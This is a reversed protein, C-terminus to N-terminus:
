PRFRSPDPCRLIYSDPALEIDKITPRGGDVFKSSRARDRRCRTPLRNASGRSRSCGSRTKWRWWRGPRPTVTPVCGRCQALRVEWHEKDVLSFTEINSFLNGFRDAFLIQGVIRNRDTVPVPSGLVQWDAVAQGMEEPATKGSALRGALPAFVDRGHFTASIRGLGSGELYGPAIARVVSGEGRAVGTLLGNDPALFLHGGQQVLLIRRATGVGPDVVCVHVSGAPFCPFAREIWFAAAGVAFPPLDHTLDVLSAEPCEALIGAKVLGVFPESYGFDTLLSVLPRCAGAGTVPVEEPV